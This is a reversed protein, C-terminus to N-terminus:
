QVVFFKRSGLIQNEGELVVVYAGASYNTTSWKMKHKGPTFNRAEVTEVYQGLMDFVKLEMHAARGLQVDLQIQGNSPNPYTFGLQTIAHQQQDKVSV